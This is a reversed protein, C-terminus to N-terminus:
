VEFPPHASIFAAAEAPDDLVAVSAAWPRDGALARLLAEAPLTESWYSRGLLVMPSVVHFTVYHNQAADMFIEQVTGASGPAYVVGHTAIALLGDERLSNSFYKAVHPAFLTSPEHGYFWTPIALSDVEAGEPYRELVIRATDVWGADKYSPADRLIALAEDLAADECPALWAGLHAAEMAGPGGGTTVLYGDRALRRGLRVVDAFAAEDRQLAHGGMIGVVQHAGDHLLGELANDIAHDHLRQALADLVSVRPGQSRRESFWAYIRGDLTDSLSAADGPRYGQYLEEPRYLRPRYPHFPLDPIRPFLLGAQVVVQHETVPDLRCGLVVCGGFYVGSLEDALGRLDLGQLAVGDLGGDADLHARLAALSEIETM